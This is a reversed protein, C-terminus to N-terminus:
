IRHCTTDINPGLHETRAGAAAESELHIQIAPARTVPLHSFGVAVSAYFRHFGDYVEFQRAEGGDATIERVQVPPLAMDQHLAQLVSIMRERNLGNSAFGQLAAKREPPVIEDIPLIDHKVATQVSFCRRGPTWSDPIGAATLWEGPIEFHKGGPGKFITQM